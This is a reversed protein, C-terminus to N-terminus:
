SETRKWAATLARAVEQALAKAEDITLGNAARANDPTSHGYVFVARVGDAHQIVYGGPLRRIKLPLRRDLM